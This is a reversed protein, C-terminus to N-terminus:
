GALSAPVRDWHDVDHSFILRAGEGAHRRLVDYSQRQREHDFAFPPFVGEALMSALYCADGVLLAAEAGEATSARM